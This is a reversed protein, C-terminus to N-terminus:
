SVKFFKGDEGNIVGGGMEEENIVREGMEEENIVRGMVPKRNRAFIKWGGMIAMKSFKM